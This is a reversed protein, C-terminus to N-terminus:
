ADHKRRWALGAELWARVQAADSAELAQRLQGVTADLGELARLVHTRNLLFIDTWMEVSGGALRTTSLAGPGFRSGEPAHQYLAAALASAVAQPLHSTWALARDHQEADLVVVHATMVRAWFDAVEDAARDGGPLPCVYVVQGKFRDPGAASFGQQHTGAFPHSGAFQPALGLEAAAACVAVKASAVDTVWLGRQKIPEALSRVVDITARPPIALVLLEALRVVRQSDNALETVAGARVAAVGDKPMTTYGVIRPIGAQAAQWAVSGGIAGLGIVGLTNPRM